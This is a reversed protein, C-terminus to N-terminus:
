PCTTTTVPLHLKAALDTTHKKTDGPAGSATASYYKGNVSYIPGKGGLAELLGCRIKTSAASLLAEHEAPTKYIEVRYRVGKSVCSVSAIPKPLGARERVPNQAANTCGLRKTIAFAPAAGKTTTPPTSPKSATSRTSSTTGKATDDGKDSACAAFALLAVAAFLVSRKM